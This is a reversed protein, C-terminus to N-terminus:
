RPAAGPLRLEHTGPGVPVAPGGDPPVVRGTSGTPVRVQVVLDDADVHWASVIRGYPSDHVACARTLGGGPRPAFRVERYGPAAEQLGAVRRHLWDAVSGLAYHNFSTMGGPNVTGDPRLSDWREWISTAGQLVMYLWSPCRRQLLLRYATADHGTRSLAECVVPTGAFGTGVVHDGAAVLDALAQGAAAVAAAGGPGDALLDFCVALALATQTRHEPPVTGQAYRARFAARVRAALAGYRAADGTRGLVAATRSLCGASAAFYATAVLHPDTLAQEPRDPPAAPDLWDGLQFGTDWLHDPGALRDVLDVWAQASAYQEALLHVDGTRRYFTWPALVAVDGWVAAPRPPTWMRGGPVVPVYWPVTGDPLQELAVDRLWSGVLGTCDHLFAATPAFVQLDGTWGLREDRQPCDTPLSVMNGRMSTVVNDHLQDVLPESCTFWGTRAMDTHMVQAVVEGPGPGAPDPWGEIEAYRFGHVTFLPEWTEPGTGALVYEDCQTATRLPRTELRGHQLVEAHRLRVVTGRPGQVTIRLRGVLNRGLDLRHVGPAVEVVEVPAVQETRRVPEARPSELTAPCRPVTETAPVWAHLDRAGAATCWRPDALRADYREGEYLGTATIPSPAAWWGTPGTTVHVQSGDPLVAHLHALLATRSGYHHRTGGDFGVLGRYWGDALLAGLVNTGEVLLDTVDHTDVLLRRQYPTWGPALEADGVREGNLHPVVLGHASVHLRALVPRAPLDFAHRLQWAGGDGAGPPPCLAQARWEGGVPATEVQVPASWPSGTGDAGRVQVQVQVPVGPRLPAGPWPVLVQEAGDAGVVWAQDACAVTAPDPDPGPAPGTTPGATPGTTPEPAPGTAPGATPGPPPTWPTLRVRYAQQRWGAPAEVQWSLRPDPRHVGLVRPAARHEVGLAVVRPAAGPAPDVPWAPGADTPGAGTPGAGPDANTPGTM